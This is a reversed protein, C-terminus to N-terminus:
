RGNAFAEAPLRALQAIRRRTSAEIKRGAANGDGGAIAEYLAVSDEFAEDLDVNTLYPYVQLRLLQTAVAPHLRALERNGSIEFLVDYFGGRDNSHVARNSRPGDARLRELALSFRKRHDAEGIRRAALRAALSNLVILVELLETAEERSLVRIFAGRHPVIDVIREAALHKLAERVTSRGVGSLNALDNEFLRQGPVWRGSRINTM